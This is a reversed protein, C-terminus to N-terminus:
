AQWDPGVIPNPPPKLAPGDFRCDVIFEEMVEGTVAWFLDDSTIGLLNNPVSSNSKAYCRISDSEGLLKLWYILESFVSRFEDEDPMGDLVGRILTRGTFDCQPRAGLFHVGPILTSEDLDWSGLRALVRGGVNQFLAWRCKTASTGGGPLAVDGSIWVAYWEDGMFILREVGWDPFARFAKLAKRYSGVRGFKKVARDLDGFLLETNDYRFGSIYEMLFERDRPDDGLKANLCVGRIFNRYM